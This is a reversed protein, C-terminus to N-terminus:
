SYILTLHLTFITDHEGDQKLISRFGRSRLKNALLTGTRSFVYYQIGYATSAALSILFFWLANRNGAIRLAHRSAADQGTNQFAAIAKGYVLGFAPYEAGTCVTALFGFLYFPLAERNLAGMRKVLYFFSHHKTAGLASKAKKSGAAQVLQLPKEGQVAAHGNNVQKPPHATPDM